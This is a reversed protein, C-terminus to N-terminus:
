HLVSNQWIWCIDVWMLYSGTTCLGKETLLSVSLPDLWAVTNWGIRLQPQWVPCTSSSFSISPTRALTTAKSKSKRTWSNPSTSSTFFFQLSTHILKAEGSAIVGRKFALRQHLGNIETQRNIETYCFYRLRWCPWFTAAQTRELLGQSVNVVFDQEQCKLELQLAVHQNGSVSDKKLIQSVQPM